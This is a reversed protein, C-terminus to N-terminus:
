KKQGRVAWARAVLLISGDSAVPLAQRIYERLAVRREEPLSMAYGPAPGQGMLFPSWYDDFDKFITDIDIPGVDVDRLGSAHFLAELRDPNCIPFRRGEDLDAASSDLAAVADWFYQMLQMKGAYDWVYLAITGGSRAARIMESLVKEPQPVFNLMLGSVIADYHDSELALDQADAVKFEARDDPIAGRAFAIFGESQDVGTVRSPRAHQLIARSLSGTGCGVDLWQKGADIALWKLFESAVLRSWRGIYMEYSDGSVWKDHRDQGQAM